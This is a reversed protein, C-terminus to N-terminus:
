AAPRQAARCVNLWQTAARTGNLLPGKLPVAQRWRRLPRGATAPRWVIRTMDVRGTPHALLYPSKRSASTLVTPPAVDLETGFPIRRCDSSLIAPIISRRATSINGPTKPPPPAPQWRTEAASSPLTAIEIKRRLPTGHPPHAARCCRFESSRCNLRTRSWRTKM